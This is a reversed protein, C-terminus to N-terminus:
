QQVNKLAEDVVPKVPITKSGRFNGDSTLVM